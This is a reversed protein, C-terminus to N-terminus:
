HLLVLKVIMMERSAMMYRVCDNHAADAEKDERVTRALQEPLITPIAQCSVAKAAFYKTQSAMYEVYEDLSSM